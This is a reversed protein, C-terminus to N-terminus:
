ILREEPPPKMVPNMEVRAGFMEQNSPSYTGRTARKKKAMRLFVTAGVIFALLFVCAVTLGIVLKLDTSDLSASSVLLACTLGHYGPTCNCFFRGEALPTCPAGNRCPDELHCSDNHECHRGFRGDPCVCEYSGPRDLCTGGHECLSVELACEDVDTQCRSGEYGTGDCNCSFGGVHPVCRGGHLCTDDTLQERCFDILEACASGRYGDACVCRHGGKEGKCTAGNLCPASECFDRLRECNTGEYGHECECRYAIRGIIGQPYCLGNNLCPAQDCTIVKRDTCNRGEFDETCFCSFHGPEGDECTAGNQCPRLSCYWIREECRKGTYGDPCDCQFGGDLNICPAGQLCPRTACEDVDLECHEGEYAPPCVCIYSKLPDQCSGGHACQEAQCLICDALPENSGLLEFRDWKTADDNGMLRDPTFFPLLIGGLRVEKLCGEFPAGRPNGASAAAPDGGLVMAEKLLDSLGLTGDDVRHLTRVDEPFLTANIASSSVSIRLERWEGQTANVGFSVTQEGFGFQWRAEVQGGVLALSFFPGSASGSSLHLLGGDQSRTRFWLSIGDLKRESPLFAQYRFTTSRNADFTASSVCEFGQELDQCTSQNPCSNLVCPKLEECHKGRYSPPCLCEYANWIDKCTAGNRCPPEQGNCVDDGVVGNQVSFSQVPEAIFNGSSAASSPDDSKLLPVPQGNLRLDQLVGKFADINGVSDTLAGLWSSGNGAGAQRRRRRLPPQSQTQLWGLYMVHPAIAGGSRGSTSPELGEQGDVAAGLWSDNLWVQVFHLKGDDLRRSTAPRLMTATSSAGVNSSSSALLLVELRGDRLRAALFSEDGAPEASSHEAGLYFLLGSPSRTRVFLSVEVGLGLSSWFEPKVRLKTFSLSGHHGFTAAPHSHNCREGYYPRRCHCEHQDWLDVCTGQGSCTDTVCQEERLCGETLGVQDRPLQLVGDLRVERMCGVFGSSNQKQFSTADLHSQGSGLVVSALPLAPDYGPVLATTNPGDLLSLSMLGSSVELLLGKWEANNLAEGVTSMFSDDTAKVLLRGESLAILLMWSKDLAVRALLGSPLTTRFQMQLRHHNSPGEHQQRDVGLKWASESHLSATTVTQCVDGAFGALCHCRYSHQGDRTLFPECRAGNLCPMERCGILLTSCNKDGYGDVCVCQYDAVLDRCTAGNRCPQYAECENVETGCDAAEYGPECECRYANVLDVCHGHISCDHGPCDDINIECRTGNFGPPCLCVYGAATAYSFSQFLGLYNERYLSANSRELCAAGNECPPASPRPPDCDPVDVDCAAGEYGDYCHCYFGRVSDECTGGHQCAGPYCDDINRECHVGEFGTDTCNCEYGNVLDLCSAGNLCPGSQCEDIDIECRTGEYGAPCVCRFGNVQDLCTAGHMCPSSDCENFDIECHDGLYGGPCVCKYENVGDVCTAGNRCPQSLCENVEIHCHTGTFGPRCFCEYRGLHNRCFSDHECLHVACEDVDEACRAGQLGRPCECQFGGSVDDTERCTAGLVCPNPSCRQPRLAFSGCAGQPDTCRCEYGRLRDICQMGSPCQHGACEDVNEECRSGRLGLPCACVFGEAGLESPRCTANNACPQASCVDKSPAAAIQGKVCTEGKRQCDCQWGPERCLLTGNICDATCINLRECLEGSYGPLCQCSFRGGAAVHCTGHLCPNTGQCPDHSQDCQEGTWGAECTCVFDNVLNHCTGGNLCPSSACLDDKRECLDGSYGPLCLCVPGWQDSHCTAGNQCPSLECPDTTFTLECHKGRFGAACSCQYAAPGGSLVSFAQGSDHCLGGYLCPNSPSTCNYSRVCQGLAPDERYGPICGCRLQARCQSGASQVCGWHPCPAWPLECHRGSHAGTCRCTFNTNSGLEREVQCVGDNMCPSGDECPGVLQECHPGGFGPPCACEFSGPRNFCTGGNFCANESSDACEDIDEDCLPGHFGTNLCNCLPGTAGETCVGGHRCLGLQCEGVHLECHVGAYGSPCLCFTRGPGSGHMCSGGNQCQQESRDCQADPAPEQCASGTWPGKCQCRTSNGRWDEVCTGGNACPQKKWPDRKCLPGKDLECHKGIYRATCTCTPVGDQVMCLGGHWCPYDFCPDVLYDKCHYTDPLPCTGWQPSGESRASALPLNAGESLCGRFGSPAVVTSVAQAMLSLLYPRITDSAVLLLRREDAHLWVMGYVPRLSLWHLRNNSVNTGVMVADQVGRVSWSLELAGNPLVALSISDNGLTQRLITGHGCTRFALSTVASLIPQSDNLLLSSSGDLFVQSSAHGPDWLLALGAGFIWIAFGNM